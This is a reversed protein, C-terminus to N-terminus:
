PLTQGHLHKLMRRRTTRGEDQVRIEPGEAVVGKREPGPLIDDLSHEEVADVHEGGIVLLDPGRTEGHLQRRDHGEPVINGLISGGGEGAEVDKKPVTEGTQVASASLVQGKVV